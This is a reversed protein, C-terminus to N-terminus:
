TYRRVKKSAKLKKKYREITKKVAYPAISHGRAKLIVSILYYKDHSGRETRDGLKKALDLLNYRSLRELHLILRVGTKDKVPQIRGISKKSMIFRRLNRIAERRLLQAGKKRKIPSPLRVPKESFLRLGAKIARWQKRIYMLTDDKSATEYILLKIFSLGASKREKDSPLETSFSPGYAPVVHKDYQLGLLIYSDLLKVMEPTPPMGFRKLIGLKIERVSQSDQSGRRERRARLIEIEKEFDDSLTALFLLEEAKNVKEGSMSGIKRPIVLFLWSDRPYRRRLAVSAGCAAVARWPHYQINSQL